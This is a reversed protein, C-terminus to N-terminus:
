HAAGGAAKPPRGPVTARAVAAAAALAVGALLWLAADYGGVRVHLAGVLVPAGTQAGAMLSSMAGNISGYSAPGFTDAVLGARALTSAGNAMGFLAAFGWLGALGPVLMLGVLAAARLGYTLTALRGLPVRGAAPAFLLRGAVQMLGISGVAAAVLGAPHGRELLMPVAHAAVGVIAIRDLGFACTLWWFAGSRFARRPAVSAEPSSPPEASAGDPATGLQAPHRRLILGHLPIAVLALLLALARLAGRWGLLEVLGTALPVFITSALGAVTTVVLMAKIRDRRFWTALVTFAVDYTVAAIALGIGAQVLYLAPLRDVFSWALVLLAALASAVTMLGRAGRADVWRGVPVASLGSILLALSFAGSTQARSWGLESEMPVLFVSFAYFLVGYGVTQTVALAWAIRWGHYRPARIM